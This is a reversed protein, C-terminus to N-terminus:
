PMFFWQVTGQIMWYIGKFVSGIESLLGVAYSMVQRALVLCSKVYEVRTSYLIPWDM